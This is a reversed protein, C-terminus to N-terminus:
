QMADMRSVIEFIKAKAVARDRPPFSRLTTTIGTMFQEVDDPPPINKESDIIYKMLVATPTEDTRKQGRKTRKPQPCNEITAQSLTTLLPTMQQSAEPTSSLTVTNQEVEPSQAINERENIKENSDFAPVTPIPCVTPREKMYALLFSM